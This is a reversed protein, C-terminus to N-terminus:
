ADSAAPTAAPINHAQAYLDAAEEVADAMDANTAWRKERRDRFKDLAALTRPSVTPNGEDDVLTTEITQKDADVAQVDAEAEAARSRYTAGLKNRLIDAVKKPDAM